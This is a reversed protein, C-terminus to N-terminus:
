GGRQGKEMQWVGGSRGLGLWDEGVGSALNGPDDDVRVCLVHVPKVPRGPFESDGEGKGKEGKRMRGIGAGFVFLHLRRGEEQGPSPPPYPGHLRNPESEAGALLFFIHTALPAHSKKSQKNQNPQFKNSHGLPDIAFSALSSSYGGKRSPRNKGERNGVLVPM